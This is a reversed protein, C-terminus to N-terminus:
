ARCLEHERDAAGDDGAGHLGVHLGARAARARDAAQPDRRLAPGRHQRHLRLGLHRRGEAGRGAPGRVLRGPREASIAVPEHLRRHVAGARRGRPLRREHGHRDLRGSHGGARAVASDGAAPVLRAAHEDPPRRPRDTVLRDWGASSVGLTGWAGGGTAANGDTDIALVLVTDGPRYLAATEAVVDIRNGSRTLTLDVLDAVSIRDAAYRKDGAPHALTGFANQTGDHLRDDLEDAGHDDNVYDRYVVAGNCVNTSGAWWSTGGCEQVFTREPAATATTRVVAADVVSLALVSAAACRLIRVARRGAVGRAQVTRGTIVPTLTHRTVCLRM